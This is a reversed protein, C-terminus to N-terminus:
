PINTDSRLPTKRRAAAAEFPHPLSHGFFLFNFLDGIHLDIKGLPVRIDAFLCLQDVIGRDLAHKDVTRVTVGNPFIDLTQHIRFELLGACLVDIHRHQDRFGQQLLFLVVDLAERRLARPDRHAATLLELLAVTDARRGLRQEALVEVVDDVGPAIQRLHIVLPAAHQAPFLRATREQAVALEEPLLAVGHVGRGLLGALLCLAHEIHIGVEALVHQGHRDRAALLGVLFLEVAGLRGIRDLAHHVVALGQLRARGVEEAVAKGLREVNEIRILVVLLDVGELRGPADGRTQDAADDHGVAVVAAEDQRRLDRRHLDDDDRDGHM